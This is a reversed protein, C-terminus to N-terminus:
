ISDVGEYKVVPAVGSLKESRISDEKRKRTKRRVEV